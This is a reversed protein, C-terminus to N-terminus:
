ASPSECPTRWHHLLLPFCDHPGGGSPRGSLTPGRDPISWTDEGRWGRVAATAGPLGDIDRERHASVTADILEDEIELPTM